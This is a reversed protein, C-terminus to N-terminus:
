IEQWSDGGGVRLGDHKEPDYEEWWGEINDSYSYSSWSDAEEEDFDDPRDAEPYVGYMEAHALGCQYAYDSLEEDTMDNPVLVFEASDTGAYGANMQIVIKRM